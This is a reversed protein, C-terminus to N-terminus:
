FKSAFNFIAIVVAVFGVSLSLFIQVNKAAIKEELQKESSLIKEELSKNMTMVKDDLAVHAATYEDRPIFKRERDDMAARWENSSARWEKYNLEAKNTATSAAVLAANIAKEQAVLAASVAKEQAAFAADVAKEQAAFAKDTARDKEGLLSLVFDKVKIHDDDRGSDGSIPASVESVM